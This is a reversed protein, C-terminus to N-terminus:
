TFSRTSAATSRAPPDPGAVPNFRVASSHSEAPPVNTAHCTEAPSAVPSGKQHGTTGGQALTGCHGGSEPSRFQAPSFDSPQLPYKVIPVQSSSGWIISSKRSDLADAPPPGVAAISQARSSTM